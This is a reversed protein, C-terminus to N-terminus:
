VGGRPFLGARGETEPQVCRWRQDSQVSCVTCIVPMLSLTGRTVGWVGFCLVGIRGPEAKEAQRKADPRREAAVESPVISTLFNITSLLAKTHLLFDLSSFEVQFFM